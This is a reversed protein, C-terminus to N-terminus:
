LLPNPDTTCWPTGDTAVAYCYDGKGGCICTATFTTGVRQGTYGSKTAWVTRDTKLLWAYTVSTSVDAVGSIMNTEGNNFV